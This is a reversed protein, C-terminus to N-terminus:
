VADGEPHCTIVTVRVDKTVPPIGTQDLKEPIQVMQHAESSSPAPILVDFEETTTRRVRMRYNKM